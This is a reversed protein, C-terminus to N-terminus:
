PRQCNNGALLGPGLRVVASGKDDDLSRAKGGTRLACIERPRSPRGDVHCLRGLGLQNSLELQTVHVNCDDSIVVCADFALDFRDRMGGHELPELGRQVCEASSEGEEDGGGGASGALTM